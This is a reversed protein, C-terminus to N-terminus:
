VATWSNRMFILPSHHVNLNQEYREYTGSLAETGIRTWTGGHDLSYDTQLNNGRAEFQLKLVRKYRDVYEDGFTFDKTEYYGDFAVGNDNVAIHDDKYVKGSSDAFIRYFAGSFAGLEDITNGPLTDITSSLVDLQDITM